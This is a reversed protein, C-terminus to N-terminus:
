LAIASWAEIAAPPTTWGSSSPTFSWGDGDFKITGCDVFFQDDFHYQLKWEMWYITESVFYQPPLSRLLHTKIQEFQQLPSKTSGFRRRFLGRCRRGPSETGFHVSGPGNIVAKVPVVNIEQKEQTSM